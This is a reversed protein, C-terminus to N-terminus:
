GEHLAGKRAKHDPICAIRLISFHRKIPGCFSFSFHNRVQLWRLVAVLAEKSVIHACLSINPNWLPIMGREQTVMRWTGLSPLSTQFRRYLAVMLHLIPSCMTIIALIAWSIGDTHSNSSFISPFWNNAVWCTWDVYYLSLSIVGLFDQSSFMRVNPGPVM